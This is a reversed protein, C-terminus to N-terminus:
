VSPLLQLTNYSASHGVLVRELGAYDNILRVIGYGADMMITEVERPGIELFLAGDPSLFNLSQPVLRRYIDLGDNGGDLALMPEHEKIEVQLCSLQPTPIYPPNSIIVDFTQMSLAHFLDSQVFRIDVKHLAANEAALNLAVPSIDVATVDTDALKAMAVAICGSGTCVDLVRATRGLGRIFVLAEEVLLETEPRPILARPDSIIDLGMFEWMGLIYQLPEKAKRREIGALFAGKAPEYLPMSSDLTLTTLGLGTVHSLLLRAEHRGIAEAGLNLAEQLTM